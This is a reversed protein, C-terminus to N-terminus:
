SSPPAACRMRVCGWRRRGPMVRRPRPVGRPHPETGRDRQRRRGASRAAGAGPGARHAGRRLRAARRAEPARARHRKRQHPRPRAADAHRGDRRQRSVRDSLPRGGRRQLRRDRCSVASQAIASARSACTSSPPSRSSSASRATTNAPTASPISTRASCSRAPAAARAPWRGLLNFAADERVDLGAERMWAGVLANARSMAPSHFTRTLRGPEDTIAGLEDCRRMLQRSLHQLGMTFLSAARSVARGRRARRLPDAGSRSIRRRRFLRRCPLDARIRRRRSRVGALLPADTRGDANTVVTKVLAGAFWLEITMGAAPRGAALDLVHTSLGASSM